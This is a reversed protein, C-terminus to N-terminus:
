ASTTGPRQLVCKVKTVELEAQTMGRFRPLIKDIFGDPMDERTEAYDLVAFGVDEFFRRIEVARLRNEMGDYGEEALFAFPHLGRRKRHDGLDFSHCSVGGPKMLNFINAAAPAFVMVHELVMWSTMIDVSGALDSFESIDGVVFTIPADALGGELDGKRLAETDFVRLRELFEAESVGSHLWFGPNLTLDCITEYLTIAAHPRVIDNIDFSIVRGAGNALMAAATTFPQRLGCGLEMFTKGRLDAHPGFLSFLAAVQNRGKSLGSPWYDSRNTIARVTEASYLLRRWANLTLATSGRAVLAKALDGLQRNADSWVSRGDGDTETLIDELLQTQRRVTTQVLRKEGQAALEESCGLLDLVDARQAAPFKLAEAAAFIEQDVPALTEFHSRLASRASADYIESRALLRVPESTAM